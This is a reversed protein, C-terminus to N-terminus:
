VGVLKDNRELLFTHRIPKILEGNLFEKLPIFVDTEWKYVKNRRGNRAPGGWELSKINQDAHELTACYFNDLNPTDYPEHKFVLLGAYSFQHCIKKLYHFRYQDFWYLGDYKVPEKSKVEAVFSPLTSVSGYPQKSICYDPLEIERDQSKAVPVNYKNRFRATFDILTWGADMCHEVFEEEVLDGQSKADAFDKLGSVEAM